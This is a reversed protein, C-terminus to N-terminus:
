HGGAAGGKKKSNGMAAAAALSDNVELLILYLGERADTSLCIEGEGRFMETLFAVKNRVTKM